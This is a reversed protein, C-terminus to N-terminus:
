TNPEMRSSPNIAALVNFTKIWKNNNFKMHIYNHNKFFVKFRLHNYPPTAYPIGLFAYAEKNYPTRLRFGRVVGQAVKVEPYYHDQSLVDHFEIYIILLVFYLFIMKKITQM